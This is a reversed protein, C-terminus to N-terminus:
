IELGQFGSATSRGFSEIEVGMRQALPIFLNSLPTNEKDDHAVFSGHKYGGGAVIIPLNRWDHSSANGLNSGFLISTGDLLSRGEEQHLKLKSLFDAFLSFEAKEIIELEEIKDEDKGHHSLNHWDTKVGKINSPVANFAGLSFTMVRSSDTQLALAMLDYMLQQKALLDFRDQVDNPESYNVKPKPKGSWDKNQQLRKELNRVSSFYEELKDRDVQGLNGQLRRADGRIVDLISQGRNLHNLQEKIEKDTGQVFLKRYVKSPSSQSPISVGNTNWSISQGGGGTGLNISPIRTKTGIKGAILQDLSIANKFGALGPREVATLWTMESAHGSSGQQNSHSLGSFLTFDKRLHKLEELYPTIEYEYGSKKPFLNPGHFGLAANIAVFRNPVRPLIPTRAFVPTMAELMPLALSVGAGKLFTRRSLSESRYIYATM